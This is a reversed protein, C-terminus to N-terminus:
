VQSKRLRLGHPPNSTRIIPSLRRKDREPGGFGALHMPVRWGGVDRAALGLTALCSGTIRGNMMGGAGDDNANVATTGDDADRDTGDIASRDLELTWLV